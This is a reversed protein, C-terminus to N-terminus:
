PTESMKFRLTSSSWAGAWQATNTCSQDSSCKGHCQICFFNVHIAVYTALSIGGQAEKQPAMQLTQTCESFVHAVQLASDSCGAHWQFTVPQISHDSNLSESLLTLWGFQLAHPDHKIFHAM